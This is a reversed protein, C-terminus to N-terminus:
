RVRQALEAAMYKQMDSRIEFKASCLHRSVITTVRRFQYSNGHRLYVSEQWVVARPMKGTICVIGIITEGDCLKITRM